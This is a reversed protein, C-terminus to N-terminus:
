VSILVYLVKNYTCTLLLLSLNQRCGYCQNREESHNAVDEAPNVSCSDSCWDSFYYNSSGISVLAVALKQYTLCRVCRLIM